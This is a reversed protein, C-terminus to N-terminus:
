LFIRWQMSCDLSRAGNDGNRDQSSQMVLVDPYFESLVITQIVDEFTRKGCLRQSMKALM